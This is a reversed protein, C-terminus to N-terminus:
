LSSNSFFTKSIEVIHTLYLDKTRALCLVAVETIFWNQLKWDDSPCAPSRSFIPHLTFFLSTLRWICCVMCGWFVESFRGAPRGSTFGESRPTFHVYLLVWLLVQSDRRDARPHAGFRGGAAASPHAALRWQRIWVCQRSSSHLQASRRVAPERDGVRAPRFLPRFTPLIQKNTCPHM